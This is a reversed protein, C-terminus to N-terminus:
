KLKSFEKNKYFNYFYTIEKKVEKETDIDEKDWIELLISIFKKDDFLKYNFLLYERVNGLSMEWMRNYVLQILAFLSGLFIFIQYNLSLYKYTIFIIIILELSNFLLSLSYNMYVKTENRRSILNLKNMFRTANKVFTFPFIINSWIFSFWIYSIIFFGISIIIYM